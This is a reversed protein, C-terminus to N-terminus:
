LLRERVKNLMELQTGYNAEFTRTGKHVAQGFGLPTQASHHDFCLPIVDWHSARKAMGAGTIHHIEPPRQCIMCGLARVREWHRLQAKTPKIM